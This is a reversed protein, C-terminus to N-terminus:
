SLSPQNNIVKGKSSMLQISALVGFHHWLVWQGNALETRHKSGDRKWIKLGKM